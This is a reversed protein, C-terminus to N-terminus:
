CDSCRELRDGNVVLYHTEVLGNAVPSLAILRGIKEQELVQSPKPTLDLGGNGVVHKNTLWLLGAEVNAAITQANCTKKGKFCMSVATQRFSVTVAHKPWVFGCNKCTFDRWQWMYRDRERISNSYQPVNDHVTKSKQLPIKSLPVLAVKNIKPSWDCRLRVDFELM